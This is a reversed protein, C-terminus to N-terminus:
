RSFERSIPRGRAIDALASDLFEAYILNLISTFM